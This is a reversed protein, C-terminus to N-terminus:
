QEKTRLGGAVGCHFHNRGSSLAPSSASATAAVAPSAHGVGPVFKGGSSSSAQSDAFRRFAEKGVREGFLRNLVNAVESLSASRILNLDAILNDLDQQLMLMDQKTAPWRDTFSESPLRPNNIQPRTNNLINPQLVATIATALDHLQDLVTERPLCEGAIKSLIVSPPRDIKREDYTLNLYRKLLKLALVQPADQRPDVLEPLPEADAFYATEDIGASIRDRTNVRLQNDRILATLAEPAAQMKSLFWDAFGFPNAHYQTSEGDKYQFVWGTRQDRPESDPAIPTVDLHMFPFELKVCRKCLKINTADPFGQLAEYLMALNEKATKGSFGPLELIADLDFRDENLGGHVITAGIARSGQPHILADPHKMMLELQSGTRSLHTELMEYRRAAVRQDRESLEIQVLIQLLLLDLNITTENLPM